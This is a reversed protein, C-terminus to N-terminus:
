CCTFLDPIQVGFVKQCQLCEATHKFTRGHTCNQILDLVPGTTAETSDDTYLVHKTTNTDCSQGALDHSQMAKRAGQLQCLDDHTWGWPARVKHRKLMANRQMM